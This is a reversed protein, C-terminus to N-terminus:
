LPTQEWNYIMQGYNKMGNRQSAFRGRYYDRNLLEEESLDRKMKGKMIRWDPFLNNMYDIQKDKDLKTFKVIEKLQDGNISVPGDRTEEPKLITFHREILKAGSVIAGLSAIINDRPVLSHDSFGVENSYNNLWNLRDLNMLNLPTPYITVCHLFTYNSNKNKLIESTHAIEEDFTAGTSVYLIKFKDALDEILKYSACDYSAVKIESFGQDYIMNITDRTFCTTLPLVNYSECLRVFQEYFSGKIELSKLREYEDKWPRKISITKDNIKLGNEFIPRYALNEAYITQLKVHTAGSEAAESVMKKVIDFDGNHNQCLEAIIKM